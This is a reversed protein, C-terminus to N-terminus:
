SIKGEGKQLWYMNSELYCFYINLSFTLSFPSKKLIVLQIMERNKIEREEQEPTEQTTMSSMSELSILAVFSRSMVWWDM